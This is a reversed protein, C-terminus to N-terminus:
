KLIDHLADRNVVAIDNGNIDILGKRELGELATMLASRTSAFVDAIQAIDPMPVKSNDASSHDLLYSAAKQKLSKFSLFYIKKSWINARNSIIDIFNSLIIMNEQMLEFIFGRHLTMIKTPVDAVVDIPLRNYGGFLFAPAILGPSEISDVKASSGDSYTIVGSARGEVIIMLGSYAMDRRAIVDSAQYDTLIYNDGDCSLVSAIQEASMGRFLPCETLKDYMAIMM